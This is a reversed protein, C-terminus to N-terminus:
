QRNRRPEPVANVMSTGRPAPRKKSGITLPRLKEEPKSAIKQYVEHLAEALNGASNTTAVTRRAAVSQSLRIVKEPSASHMVRELRDLRFAPDSASSQLFLALGKLVQGSLAKREGLWIAKILSLTRTLLEDGGYRMIYKCAGIATINFDGTTKAFHFGANTVIRTMALTDPHRAVLEARYLAFETLNRRDRQAQVFLDAEQQQAFDTIVYANVLAVGSERALAVRHGGDVVFLAGGRESVVIAGARRPDFPLHEELWATSVDRQYASDIKLAEVPLQRLVAKGVEKGGSRVTYRKGETPIVTM